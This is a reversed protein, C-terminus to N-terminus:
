QYRLGPTYELVSHMGFGRDVVLVTPRYQEIQSSAEELTLAAAVLQIDERSGLVAKFGEQVIPQPDCLCVSIM